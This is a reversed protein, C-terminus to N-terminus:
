VLQPTALVPALGSGVKNALMSDEVVFKQEFKMGVQFMNNIYLLVSLQAM